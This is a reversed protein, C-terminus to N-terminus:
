RGRASCPQPVLTTRLIEDCANSVSTGHTYILLHGADPVVVDPRMSKIPFLRDKAGHIQIVRGRFGSREWELLRIIAWELFAADTVNLANRLMDGGNANNVGFAFSVLCQPVLNKLKLVSKLLVKGPFCNLWYFYFPGEKKDRISSILLVKSAGLKAAMEMAVIGGFSVGALLFPKETDVQSCLRGAYSALSEDPSPVLWKVPKFQYGSGAPLNEFLEPGIGLGALIYVSFEHATGTGTGQAQGQNQLRMREHYARPDPKLM